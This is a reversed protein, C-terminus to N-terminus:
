LAGGLLDPLAVLLVIAWCILGITGWVIRQRRTM